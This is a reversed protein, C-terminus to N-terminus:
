ASVTVFQDLQLMVLKILKFCSSFQDARFATMLNMYNTLRIMQFSEQSVTLNVLRYSNMKILELSSWKPYNQNSFAKPTNSSIPGKRTNWTYINLIPRLTHFLDPCKMECGKTQMTDLIGNQMTRPSPGIKRGIKCGPMGDPTQLVRHM